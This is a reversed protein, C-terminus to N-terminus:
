IYTGSVATLKQHSKFLNADSVYLTNIVIDHKGVEKALAEADTSSVIRSAGLGHIEAKRDSTSFATVTM